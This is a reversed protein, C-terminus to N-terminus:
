SVLNAQAQKFAAGHMVEDGRIQRFTKAITHDGASEAAKAYKTYMQIAGAEAARSEQLNAANTGVLGSLNAANAFHDQLEVAAIGTYLKGLGPHAAKQAFLTYEGWAQAESHEADTLNKETQGGCVATSRHITAAQLGPAQPVQGQGGLANLAGTFLRHHTVEDEAFENFRPAVTTCGQAQAQKAYQKYTSIAENEAAISAKVNATDNGVLNIQGALTTFHDKYEDNGTTSWLHALKPQHTRTAEDAFAHYQAYAFTETNMAHLVNARTSPSVTHSAAKAMGSATLLIVGCLLVVSLCFTKVIHM